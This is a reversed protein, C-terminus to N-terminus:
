RSPKTWAPGTRRGSRPWPESSNPHGVSRGVVRLSRISIGSRSYVWSTTHTTPELKTVYFSLVGGSAASCTDPSTPRWYAIKPFRWIAIDPLLILALFAWVPRVAAEAPVLDMETHLTRALVTDFDHVTRGLPRGPFGHNEAIAVVLSRLGGLRDPTVRGGGTAAFYQALHATDSRGLLDTPVGDRVESYREKAANGPLRPYLTSM